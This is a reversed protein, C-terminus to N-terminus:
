HCRRRRQAERHDRRRKEKEQWREPIRVGDKSGGYLSACDMCSASLRHRCSARQRADSCSPKRSSSRWSSPAWVVGSGRLSCLVSCTRIEEGKDESDRRNQSEEGTAAHEKHNTTTTKTKSVICAFCTNCSSSDDAGRGAAESSCRFEAECHLPSRDRIPSSDDHTDTM